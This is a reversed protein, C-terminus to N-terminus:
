SAPSPDNMDFHKHILRVGFKDALGHRIIIDLLRQKVLSLDEASTNAECVTPLSNYANTPIM